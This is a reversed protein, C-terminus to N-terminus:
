PADGKNLATTALGEIRVNPRVCATGARDTPFCGWAPCTASEAHMKEIDQKTWAFVIKGAQWAERQLTTPNDRMLTVAPM